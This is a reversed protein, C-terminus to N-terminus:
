IGGYKLNQHAGEGEHDECRDSYGLEFDQPKVAKIPTGCYTGDAHKYNCVPNRAMAWWASFLEKTMGNRSALYAEADLRYASLEQAPIRIPGIVPLSVVFHMGNEEFRQAEQLFDASPGEIANSKLSAIDRQLRKIQEERYNAEVEKLELKSELESTHEILKAQLERRMHKRLTEHDFGNKDAIDVIHQDHQEKQIRVQESLVNNEDKLAVSKQEVTLLQASLQEVKRNLTDILEKRDKKLTEIDQEYKNKANSLQARLKKIGQAMNDRQQLLARDREEKRKQRLNARLMEERETLADVVRKYDEGTAQQLSVADTRESAIQGDASDANASAQTSVISAANTTQEVYLGLKNQKAQAALLKLTNNQASLDPEWLEGALWPIPCQSRCALRVHTGNLQPGYAATEALQELPINWGLKLAGEGDFEILFFVASLINLRTDVKAFVAQHEDGAFDAESVVGDLVAEFEGFEMEKIVNNDEIFYIVDHSSKNAGFSM